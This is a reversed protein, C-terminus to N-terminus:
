DGPQRVWLGHPHGNAILLAATKPGPLGDADKLPVGYATQRDHWVKLDQGAEFDFSDYGKARLIKFIADSPDGSGRNDSVDRHGFVGYCDVGGKQLRKIPKGLYAHPIQRQITFVKTLYDVLAAAVMLQGAYVERQSGQFIEIGISRRNILNNGAHFAAIHAIDCLCAISGDADVVLQAGARTKSSSWYRAVKEDSRVNPGLGPRVVQPDLGKTTHLIIMKVGAGNARPAGDGNPGLDLALAPNSLFSEIPVGLAPTHLQGRIVIGSM